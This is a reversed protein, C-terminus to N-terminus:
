PSLLHGCLLAHQRGAGGCQDGRRTGSGGGPLITTASHRVGQDGDAHRLVAASGPRRTFLQVSRHTPLWRRLPVPLRRAHERMDPRLPEGQHLMRRHRYMHDLNPSIIAILTPKLHFPFPYRGGLKCQGCGHHSGEHLWVGQVERLLSALM